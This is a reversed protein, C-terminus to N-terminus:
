YKKQLKQAKLKFSNPDWDKQIDHVFDYIFENPCGLEKHLDELKQKIYKKTSYILRENQYNTPEWKYNTMNM